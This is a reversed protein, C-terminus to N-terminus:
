RDLKKDGNGSAARVAHVLSGLVYLLATNVVLGPFLLRADLLFWPMALLTFPIWDLGAKSPSSTAATVGFVVVVLVVYAAAFGFGTRNIRDWLHGKDPVVYQPGHM